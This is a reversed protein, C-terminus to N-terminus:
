ARDRWAACVDSLKSGSPVPSHSMCYEPLQLVPQNVTPYLPLLLGQSLRSSPGSPLGQSQTIFSPPIVLILWRPTRQRPRDRSPQNYGLVSVTTRSPMKTPTESLAALSPLSSFPIDNPHGFPHSNSSANASFGLDDTYSPGVTSLNTAATASFAQREALQQASPGNVHYASTFRSMRPSQVTQCCCFFSPFLRASVWLASPFSPFFAAQRPPVLHPYLVPHPGCDIRCRYLNGCRCNPSHCSM